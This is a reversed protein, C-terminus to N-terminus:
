GKPAIGRGSGAVSSLSAFSNKRAIGRSRAFPSLVAVKAGGDSASASSIGTVINSFGSRALSVDTTSDGGLIGADSGYVWGPGNVSASRRAIVADSAPSVASTGPVGPVAGVGGTGPAGSPKRASASIEGM